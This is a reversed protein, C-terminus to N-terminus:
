KRRRRHAAAAVLGTVLLLLSSPEPVTPIFDDSIKNLAIGGPDNNWMSFGAIDAVGGARVFGFTGETLNPLVITHILDGNSKFFALNADGGTGLGGEGFFQEFGFRSLPSAFLVAISGEGVNVDDPTSAGAPGVGSLVNGMATTTLNLNRADSAAPLLTLGALDGASLEDFVTGTRTQGDFRDGFM